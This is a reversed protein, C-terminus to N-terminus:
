SCNWKCSCNPCPPYPLKLPIISMDSTVRWGGFPGLLAYQVEIYFATYTGPLPDAMTYQYVGNGIAILPASIFSVNSKCNPNNCTYLRWDRAPNNASIWVYADDINGKLSTDTFTITKGENTINWYYTPRLQFGDYTSVYFEGLSIVVQLVQQALSHDANQVIWLYKEGPIDNWYYQASDPMFFEDLSAVIVYKPIAGLAQPYTKPDINKLLALFEPTNVWGFIGEDIYDDVAFSFEDYSQYQENFQPVINSIPAVIPVIASVRPDAMAGVMWTTWGRKSAGGVVFNSIPPLSKSVVFQQIADM